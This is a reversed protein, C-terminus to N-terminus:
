YSFNVHQNQAVPHDTPLQKRKGFQQLRVDLSAFVPVQYINNDTILLFINSLRTKKHCINSTTNLLKILDFVKIRPGTSQNQDGVFTSPILIQINNSAGCTLYQVNPEKVPM